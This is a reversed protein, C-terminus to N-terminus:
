RSNWGNVVGRWFDPLKEVFLIKVDEWIDLFPGGGNIKELQEFALQRM